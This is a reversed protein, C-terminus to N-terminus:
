RVARELGRGFDKAERAMDRGPVSKEIKPAKSSYVTIDLREGKIPKEDFVSAPYIFLSLLGVQQVIFDEAVHVIEGKYSGPKPSEYIMPSKDGLLKLLSVEERWRKREDQEQEKPTQQQILNHITEIDEVNLENLINGDKKNALKINMGSEQLRKKAENVRKRASQEM